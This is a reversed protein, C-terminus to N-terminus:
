SVRRTTTVSPFLVGSVPRNPVPSQGGTVLELKRKARVPNKRSRRVPSPSPNLDGLVPLRLQAARVWVFGSARKVRVYEYSPRPNVHRGRLFHADFAGVTSFHRHCMDYIHLHSSQLADVAALDDLSSAPVLESAHATSLNVASTLLPGVTSGDASESRSLRNGIALRLTVPIRPTVHSEPPLDAGLEVDLGVLMSQEGPVRRVVVNVVRVFVLGVVGLAVKNYDIRTLMSPKVGRRDVDFSSGGKVRRAEARLLNRLDEPVIGRGNPTRKLPVAHFESGFLADSNGLAFQAILRDSRCHAEAFGTWHRGCKDCTTGIDSRM